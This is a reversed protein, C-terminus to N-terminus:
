ANLLFPLWNGGIFIQPAGDTTNNIIMGEIPNLLDRQITTYSPAITIANAAMLAVIRHLLIDTITWTDKARPIAESLQDYLSM